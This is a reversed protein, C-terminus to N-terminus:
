QRARRALEDAHDLVPRLTTADRHRFRVGVPGPPSDVELDAVGLARQWPGQEIRLSQVRRHPVVMTRRNLWGNRSVLTSDDLGASAFFAGIPACWHARRPPPSLPVSRFDLGSLAHQALALAEALPAVPILTPSFSSEDDGGQAGAVSVEVRAWGFARWLIPESVVVGQIRRPVITQANRALLGGELHLGAVTDSVTFGYFRNLRNYVAAGTGVLVPLISFSGVSGTFVLLVGLAVGGLGFAVFEPTLASSVVLLGPDLKALLRDPQAPLQGSAQGPLEASAGSLQGSAPAGAPTGETVDSAGPHAPSEQDRRYRDRRELLTARLRGAEALPLFALSGEAKGGAVDFKLEALGLIRAVVPQAIDVAQLRDIRIRRSQRFVVGTEIRLEDGEIWYKTLLWSVFGAGIGIVTVGLLGLLVFGVDNGTLNQWTAGFLALFFVWGRVFPSLPSLRKLEGRPGTDDPATDDPRSM